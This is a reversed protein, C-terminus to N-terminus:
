QVMSWKRKLRRPQFTSLWLVGTTATWIRRRKAFTTWFEQCSRWYNLLKATTGWATRGGAYLTYLTCSQELHIRFVTNTRSQILSIWATCTYRTPRFIGGWTCVKSTVNGSQLIVLVLWEWKIGCHVIQLLEFLFSSSKSEWVADNWRQCDSGKRFVAWCCLGIARKKYLLLAPKCKVLREDCDINGLFCYVDFQLAFSYRVDAM